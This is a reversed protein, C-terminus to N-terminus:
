STQDTINEGTHMSQQTNPYIPQPANMYVPYPMGEVTPNPFRRPGALAFIIALLSAIAYISYQVSSSMSGFGGVELVLVLGMMIFTFLSWLITLVSLIISIATRTRENRFFVIAFMTTHLVGAILWLPSVNSGLLLPMIFYMAIAILQLGFTISRFIKNRNTM